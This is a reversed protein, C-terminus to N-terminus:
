IKRRLEKVIGLIRVPKTGAEAPTFTMTQYAPNLPKLEINGNGYKVLRKLTADHGNIYAIVDRGSDADEVQEVIVTDGDLYKPSMSEGTVLLGFYDKNTDYERPDLEEWDIIDEVAEVPVGAPVRGLVNIRIPAKGRSPLCKDVDYGMLWVPNVNYIRAMVEVTTIKPPSKGAAYRSITPASLNLKEALTYITDNNDSMLNQLRDPFVDKNLESKL